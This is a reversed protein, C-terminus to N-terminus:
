IEDRIKEYSVGDAKGDPFKYLEFKNNEETINFISNYVELDTLGIMRSGGVSNLPNFLFTKRTKIM